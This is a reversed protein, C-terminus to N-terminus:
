ARVGGICLSLKNGNVVTNIGPIEYNFAMREFYLTKEQDLLAEVPENLAGPTRGKIPHSVKIAPHLIQEGSFFKEAVQGVVDIFETHSITMENDRSFVPVICKHKLDAYNIVETNALVFRNDSKEV